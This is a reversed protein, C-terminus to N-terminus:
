LDMGFGDNKSNSKNKIFDDVVDDDKEHYPKDNLDEFESAKMKLVCYSYSGMVIAIVYVILQPYDFSLEVNSFSPSLNKIQVAAYVLGAFITFFMIAIILIIKISSFAPKNNKIFGIFIPSLSGTVFAIAYTYFSGSVSDLYISQAIPISSAFYRIIMNAIIGFQGAVVTFMFWIFFDRKYGKIVTFPKWFYKSAMIM